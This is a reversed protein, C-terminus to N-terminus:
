SSGLDRLSSGGLAQGRARELQELLADVERDAPLRESSLYPTEEARRVADLVEGVPMRDLARSPVYGAPEGSTRLLLESGELADLVGGVVDMPVGLWGALRETTGPPSGAVHDRAIRAMLLLAVREKLRGSLTAEQRHPTV